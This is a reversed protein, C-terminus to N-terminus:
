VELLGRMVRHWQNRKSTPHGGFQLNNMLCHCTNGELTEGVWTQYQLRPGDIGSVLDELYESVGWFRFFTLAPLVARTVPHTDIRDPGSVLTELRPLKVLSAAM